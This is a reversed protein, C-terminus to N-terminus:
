ERQVVKLALYDFLNLLELEHLALLRGIVLTQGFAESHESSHLFWGM